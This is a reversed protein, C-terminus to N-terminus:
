ILSGAGPFHLIELILSGAGPFHLIELILGYSASPLDKQQM